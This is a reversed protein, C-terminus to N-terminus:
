GSRRDAISLTHEYAAHLDRHWRDLSLLLEFQERAHRRARQQLEPDSLILEAIAAVEAPESSRHVGPPVLREDLWPSDSLIVPVGARMSEIVAYPVGCDSQTPALLLSIRPLHVNLVDERSANTCIEVGTQAHVKTPLSAEDTLLVLKATPLSRRIRRFAEITELGGKRVFDRGIFGVVPSTPSSSPTLESLGQGIISVRDPPMGRDLLWSRYYASYVSLIDPAKAFYGARHSRLLRAVALELRDAREAHRASWANRSRYLESLPFGASSLMPLRHGVQRLTFIHNHVLDFAGPETSIFWTEEPFMWRRRVAKEVARVGLIALDTPTTLGRGPRRGRRVLRGDALADAYTTYEVGPPPNSILTETYTTDGSLPDRGALPSYLLVRLPRVFRASAEDLSGGNL